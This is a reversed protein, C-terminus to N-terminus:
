RHLALSFFFYDKEKGLRPTLIPPIDDAKPPRLVLSALELIDRPLAGLIVKIYEVLLHSM